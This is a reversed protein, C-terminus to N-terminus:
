KYIKLDDILGNFHWANNYAGIVVNGENNFDVGNINKDFSFNGVLKHNQYVELKQASRNVKITALSWQGATFDHGSDLTGQAPYSVGNVKGYFQM